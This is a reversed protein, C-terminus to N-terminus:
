NILFSKLFECKKNIRVGRERLRYLLQELIKVHEEHTRETILIDYLYFIIGDIRKLINNM